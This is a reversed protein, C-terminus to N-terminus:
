APPTPLGTAREIMAEVDEKIGCAELFKNRDFKPNDQEFVEALGIITIRIAEREWGLKYGTYETNLVGAILEYDKKTM